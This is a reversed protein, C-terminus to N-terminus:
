RTASALVENEYGQLILKTLPNWPRLQSVADLAYEVGHSAVLQKLEDAQPDGKGSFALAAACGRILNPFRGPDFMGALPRLM